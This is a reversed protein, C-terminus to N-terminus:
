SRIENQNRTNARRAPSYKHAKISKYMHMCFAYELIDEFKLLQHKKVLLITHANYEADAICRIARKQAVVLPKLPYVFAYYFNIHAEMSVFKRISYLIGNSKAVKSVISKVHSKFKFKNDM